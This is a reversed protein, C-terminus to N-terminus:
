VPDLNVQFYAESGSKQTHLYIIEKVTIKIM